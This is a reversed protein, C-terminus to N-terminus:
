AFAYELVGVLTENLTQGEQKGLEIELMYKDYLLNKIIEQYHNDTQEEVMVDEKSKMIRGKGFTIWDLNIGLNNSINLFIELQPNKTNGKIIYDIIQSSTNAIKALQSKNLKFEQLVYVFREALNMEDKYLM